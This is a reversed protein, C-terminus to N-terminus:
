GAASQTWRRIEGELSQFNWCHCDNRLLHMLSMVKKKYLEWHGSTPLILFSLGQFKRNEITEKKIKEEEIKKEQIEKREEILKGIEEQLASVITFIM